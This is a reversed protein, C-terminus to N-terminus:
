TQGSLTDFAVEDPHRVPHEQRIKALFKALRSFTAPVVPSTKALAKNLNIKDSGVRTYGQGKRFQVIQPYWPVSSDFSTEFEARSIHPGSTLNEDLFCARAFCDPDFAEEFSGGHHGCRYRVVPHEPIPFFHTDNSVIGQKVIKSVTAYGAPDNDYTVVIPRDHSLTQSLLRLMHGLNGIGHYNAVVVGNKELDLNARKLLIPLALEESAGEVFLYVCQSRTAAKMVADYHLAVTAQEWQYDDDTMSM